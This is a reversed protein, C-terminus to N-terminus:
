LTKIKLNRFWVEHKHDQLAIHGKTAAAFKPFDKWKSEDIRKNWEESNIDYETVKGGNLWHEVHPGNVVLKSENWEGAPNMKKDRAAEYMHYNSGTLQSPVPEGPYGEDDLIQYEPGTMYTESLEETVHFIVGTNAQPSIKWEFKLEFNEYQDKSILDARMNEGNDDFARCHLTGDSVEWSNNDLNKFVRWGSMTKGDFLLAWGERAEEDSLKNNSDDVAVNATNAQDKGSPSTCAAVFIIATLILIIRSM